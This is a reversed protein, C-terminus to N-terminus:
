RRLPGRAGSGPRPRSANRPRSPFLSGPTGASRGPTIHIAADVCSRQGQPRSLPQDSDRIDMSIDYNKEAQLIWDSSIISQTELHSICSIANNQFTNWANQGTSNEAIFNCATTMIFIVIGIILASFFTMQIHLRHFM